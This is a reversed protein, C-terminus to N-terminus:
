LGERAGAAALEAKTFDERHEGAPADDVDGEGAKIPRARGYAELNVGVSRDRKPICNTKCRMVHHAVNM